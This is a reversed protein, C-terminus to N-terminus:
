DSWINTPRSTNRLCKLFTRTMLMGIFRSAMEQHLLTRSVSAMIKRRLCRTASTKSILITVIERLNNILQEPATWLVLRTPSSLQSIFDTSHTRTLQKTNVITRLTGRGSFAHGTAPRHRHIRIAAISDTPVRTPACEGTTVLHNQVLTTITVLHRQVMTIIVTPQSRRASTANLDTVLLM